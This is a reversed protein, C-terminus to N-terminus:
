GIDKWEMIDNIKYFIPINNEKAFEHERKAGVSDKWTDVMFIADCKKLIALDGAYFIEPPVDIYDDMQMTNLHPTIVAFGLEWLRLGYKRAVEININREIKDKGTYPGAVYVVKM